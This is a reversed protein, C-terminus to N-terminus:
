GSASVEVQSCVVSVLSLCGHGGAPNSGVIGALSRGCVWAKSRAVAPIPEPNKKCLPIDASLV